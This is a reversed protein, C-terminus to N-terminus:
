ETSFPYLIKFVEFPVVSPLFRARFNGIIDYKNHSAPVSVPWEPWPGSPINNWICNM